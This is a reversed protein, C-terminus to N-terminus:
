LLNLRLLIVVSVNLVKKASLVTANDSLIKDAITDQSQMSAIALQEIM